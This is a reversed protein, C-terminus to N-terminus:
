PTRSAPASPGALAVVADAFPRIAEISRLQAARSAYPAVFPRYSAADFDNAFRNKEAGLAKTMALMADVAEGRVRPDSSQYGLIAWAAAHLDGGDRLGRLLLLADRSNDPLAAAEAEAPMMTEMWRWAAQRRRELNPEFLTDRGATSGPILAAILPMSPDAEVVDRRGLVDYRGFRAALRYERAVYERLGTFYGPADAFFDWGKNLTVIFRPRASALLALVRAEEAHDPRGPYWYDHPAANTRAAAFLLGSTAPFSWLAEAGQTHSRLFSVVFEISELEDGAVSEVHVDLRAPMPTAPAFSTMADLPGGIKDAFAIAVMALGGGLVGVRIVRKVHKARWGSSWEGRHWWRAVRDLLACAVVATLPVSTIQHMFDSRPFMQMYMATAIPIVAM